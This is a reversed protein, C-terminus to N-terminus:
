AVKVLFRRVAGSADGALANQILELFADSQKAEVPEDNTTADDM